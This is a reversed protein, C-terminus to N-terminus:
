ALGYNWVRYETRYGIFLAYAKQVWTRVWMAQVVILFVIAFNLLWLALNFTARGDDLGFIFAGVLATLALNRVEKRSYVLQHKLRLRYEALTVM